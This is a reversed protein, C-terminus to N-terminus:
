VRDRKHSIAKWRINVNWYAEILGGHGTTADNAM